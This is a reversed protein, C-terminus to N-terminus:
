VAQRFAAVLAQTAALPDDAGCIASIIAVMDAGARAVDAANTVDIGGIAVIPAGVAARIDRLREIGAPRTDSKSTTPFMAGVAIYTAGAAVATRAETVNNTSVGVVAQPGLMGRAIAPPLDHQGLHVGDAQVALALDIHDNVIFAVGTAHCVRAIAQADPLQDGKPRRKDRWQIARVGGELAFGAIEVPSRERCADPDIIAYIGRLDPTM